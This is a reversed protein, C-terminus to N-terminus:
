EGQLVADEHMQHSLLFEDEYSDTMHQEAMMRLSNLFDGFRGEKGIYSDQCEEVLKVSMFKVFVSSFPCRSTEEDGDNQVGSSSFDSKFLHHAGFFQTKLAQDDLDEFPESREALFFSACVALDSLFVEKSGTKVPIWIDDALEKKVVISLDSLYSEACAQMAAFAVYTSMNNAIFARAEVTENRALPYVNSRRLGSAAVYVKSLGHERM